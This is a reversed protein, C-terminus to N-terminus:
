THSRENTSISPFVSERCARIAQCPESTHATLVPIGLRDLLTGEMPRLQQIERAIGALLWSFERHGFLFASIHLAVRGIPTRALRVQARTKGDLIVAM